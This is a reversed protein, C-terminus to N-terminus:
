TEIQPALYFTLHGGKLKYELVLPQDNSVWVILSSAMSSIKVFQALYKTNVRITSSSSSQLPQIKVLQINASIFDDDEGKTMCHMSSSSTQLETTKSYAQITECLHQFESVDVQIKSDYSSEPIHLLESEIQLLKLGFKAYINQQDNQFLFSLTDTQDEATLILRDKASMFKLISLAKPIHLGFTQPHDVRYHEFANWKLHFLAVQSTDMARIEIGDEQVQLNIQSVLNQLTELLARLSFNSAFCIEIM